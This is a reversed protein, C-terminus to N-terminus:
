RRTKFVPVYRYNNVVSIFRQGPRSSGDHLGLPNIWDKSSFTYASGLIWQLVPLKDGPKTGEPVYVDLFLCDDHGFSTGNFGPFPYEKPISSICVTEEEPQEGCQIGDQAPPPTKPKRFRLDGTPPHAFRINKYIDLRQGSETANTFTPRHTAYGLDVIPFTRTDLLKGRVGNLVCLSGVALFSACVRFHM